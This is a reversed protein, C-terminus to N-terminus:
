SVQSPRTDPDMSTYPSIFMMEAEEQMDYGTSRAFAFQFGKVRTGDSTERIERRLYNGLTRYSPLRTVVPFGEGINRLIEDGVDFIAKGLRRDPFWVMHQLTRDPALSLQIWESTEEEVSLTRYLLHSDHVAPHPAFFRWNPVISLPDKMRVRNFLPHPHQAAITTALLAAGALRWAAGPGRVADRLTGTVNM